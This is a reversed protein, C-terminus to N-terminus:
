QRKWLDKSPRWCDLHHLVMNFHAPVLINPLFEKLELLKTCSLYRIASSPIEIASANLHNHQMAQMTSSYESLPKMSDVERSKLPLFAWHLDLMNSSLKQILSAKEHHVYSYISILQLLTMAKIAAFDLTCEWMTLARIHHLICRLSANSIPV